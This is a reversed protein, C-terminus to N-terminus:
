DIFEAFQGELTEAASPFRGSPVIVLPCPSAYLVGKTTTGLTSGHASGYDHSGMVIFNARILQAHELIRAVPAGYTIRHSATIRRARAKFVWQRLQKAALTEDPSPPAGSQHDGMAFVRLPSSCDMVHLFVIEARGNRALTIATAVAKESANSFDIPVLITTMHSLALTM